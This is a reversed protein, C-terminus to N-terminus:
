EKTLGSGWCCLHQFDNSDSVLTKCVIREQSFRHQSCLPSVACPLLVDHVLQELCPFSYPVLLHLLILETKLHTFDSVIVPPLFTHCPLERNISQQSWSVQLM